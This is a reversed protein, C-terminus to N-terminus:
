DSGKISKIIKIFFNNMINDIYVKKGIQRLADSYTPYPHIVKQLKAMNIKHTKATQIECILEGAGEGLIHAGLIYGKKDTIVKVLGISQPNVKARDLDKYDFYYVRLAKGYKARAEVETKGSHAFEPDTFTCWAINSYNVKKKFPLIANTTAIVGQYNSMHSFLYPGTVDGCAFVNAINTRLHTDTKIGKRDYEIGAKELDMGETNPKRGVAVFISSASVSDNRGDKEYTLKIIGNNKEVEVARSGEHIYVGEEILVNRLRDVLEKEERFLISDMMEVVEVRVGVRNLCQAMEIGIAGGGLIIMSDPLKELKFISENTLYDVDDIGRIDPVFPASGTAIIIKDGTIEEGNVVLTNKDKFKAFGEIVYIKHKMLATPDEEQYVSNIISRVSEMIKETDIEFDALKKAEYIKKAQNILAKSPICGSWTCEGGTKKAEIIVTKKGFGVATYACTLGAAGGGIIVVDYKM